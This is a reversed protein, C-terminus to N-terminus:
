NGENPPFSLWHSVIIFYIPILACFIAIGTSDWWKGIPRHAFLLTTGLSLGIVLLISM